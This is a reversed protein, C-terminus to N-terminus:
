DGSASPRSAFWTAIVDEDGHGLEIAHELRKLTAPGLGLEVGAARGMALALRVDKAAATLMFAPSFDDKLIKEGKLQAYGSDMPRGKIADLFLAPDVGAAEALAFTEALNEVLNMIWLNITLKLRTGAGPEAALWLVRSSIADFIEEPREPGSALVLLEGAEAQPKSGLVPCDMFRPHRAAFRATDDAGVTSMQIWLTGQDLEPVTAEVAPGDTLMTILSEAGEVAAAPSAAVNAGLGEAKEPTRNWVTVDHGAAALNRAMPSGMIGTGLFAIQM